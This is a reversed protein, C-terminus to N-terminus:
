LESPQRVSQWRGAIKDAKRKMFRINKRKSKANTSESARVIKDKLSDLESKLNSIEANLSVFRKSLKSVRNRRCKLKRKTLPAELGMSYPILHGKPQEQECEPEWTSMQPTPAAHRQPPPLPPRQAQHENDQLFAILEAKTLRSYGRLRCERALAKLEPM